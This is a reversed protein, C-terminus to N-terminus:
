KGKDDDGEMNASIKDSLWEHGSKWLRRRKAVGLTPFSPYNKM